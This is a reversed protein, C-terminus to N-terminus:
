WKAQNFLFTNEKSKNSRCTLLLCMYKYSFPIVKYWARFYNIIAWSLINVMVYVANSLFCPVTKMTFIVTCFSLYLNSNPNSGECRVICYDIIVPRSHSWVVLDTASFGVMITSIDYNHYINKIYLSIHICSWHTAYTATVHIKYLILVYKDTEYTSYQYCLFM